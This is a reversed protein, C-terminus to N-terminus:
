NFLFRAFAYVFTGSSLTPQGDTAWSTSVSGDPNTPPQYWYSITGIAANFNIGSPYRYLSRSEGTTRRSSIVYQVGALLTVPTISVDAWANAASTIDATAVSAGTDVRHIRVREVISSGPMYIGLSRCTINNSQVTFRYGLREDLFSLTGPSTWSHSAVQGIAAGATISTTVTVSFAIQGIATGTMLSATVTLNFGPQAIVVDGGVAGAELSATVALDFGTTYTVSSAEGAVLAVSVTFDVGNANAGEPPVTVLEVSVTYRQTGPIDEVQPSSGYIWSYATPTFYAPTTM